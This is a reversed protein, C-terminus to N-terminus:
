GEISISYRSRLVVRSLGSKQDKVHQPIEVEKLVDIFGQKVEIKENLPLAMTGLDFYENSCNVPATTTQNNIRQDNDTIIVVVPKSARAKLEVAIEAMSKQKTPKSNIEEVEDEEIVDVQSTEQSEYFEDIKAKLKAAGINASFTVGLDNAEKKLDNLTETSM